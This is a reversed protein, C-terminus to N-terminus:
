ALFERVRSWAAPIAEWKDRALAYNKPSPHFSAFLMLGSGDLLQRAREAKRGVLMVVRLEPLLTFLGGLSDVGRKLEDSSVKTTGNWGPVVNWICVDERPINAQTMFTFTNEATKDDNNRSIFGSVSAKPGPKEFLFLAKARIGGDLPDFDPVDGWGRERLSQVYETLPAVHAEFLL